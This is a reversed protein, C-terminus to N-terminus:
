RGGDDDSGDDAVDDDSGDDESGDDSDAVDVGCAQHPVAFDEPACRVRWCPM